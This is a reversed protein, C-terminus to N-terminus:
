PLMIIIFKMQIFSLSKCLMKVYLIGWYSCYELTSYMLYLNLFIIWLSTFDLHKLDKHRDETQRSIITPRWHGLFKRTMGILQKAITRNLVSYPVSKTEEMEGGQTMKLFCFTRLWSTSITFGKSMSSM